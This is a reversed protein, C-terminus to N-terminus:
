QKSLARAEKVKQVFLKGTEAVKKYDGTKAGAILSGGAGVAVAGAQIWQEVNNVDVGGSPMMVANPLPGLISKIFAPTAVDGPFIKLVDAGCEMAAICETPTFVGPMSAIGYRNCLKVTEPDFHPSVVYQAGALIAIRATAADLVTGAGIIIQGDSYKQCMVEILKDAHPVTFTFEIAAIGGEICADAIKEAAEPSDARVVAVVGSDRIKALTDIKNM